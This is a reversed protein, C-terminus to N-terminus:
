RFDDNDYDDYKDFIESDAKKTRGGGFKHKLSPDARIYEKKKPMEPEVVQQGPQEEIPENKKANLRQAIKEIAAKKKLEEQSMQSTNRLDYTKDANYAIKAHGIKPASGKAYDPAGSDDYKTEPTVFQKVEDIKAISDKVAQVYRVLEKYDNFTSKPRSLLEKVQNDLAYNINSKFVAVWKDFYDSHVFKNIDFGFKRHMEEISTVQKNSADKSFLTWCYWGSLAKQNRSLTGKLKPVYVFQFYSGNKSKFTFGCLRSWKRGALGPYTDFDEFDGVIYKEEPIDMKKTLKCFPKVSEIAKGLTEENDFQYTMKQREQQM